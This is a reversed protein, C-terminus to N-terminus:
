TNDHRAGCHKCKRYSWMDEIIYYGIMETIVEWKHWGVKCLLKNLMTIVGYKTSGHKQMVDLKITELWTMSM